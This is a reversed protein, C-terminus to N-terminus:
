KSPKILVTIAEQESLATVIKLRKNRLSAGGIIAINYQPVNLKSSLFKILEKNAKGREPANKLYCKLKGSEDLSFEQKGSSPTIKIELIIPVIQGQKEPIVEIINLSNCLHGYSLHSHPCLIKHARLEVPYLM